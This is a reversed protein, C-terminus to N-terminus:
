VVPLRGWRAMRAITRWGMRRQPPPPVRWGEAWGRFWAALAAPDRHTRVVQVLTWTTVYPPWLLVPLNRRALWIRNRANYRYHYPHRRAQDRAPHHVVLDGAYWVVAGQDWVRWALEIGEHAYFFCRPWRGAGELVTRRVAVAGEWVSFATSPRAPDAKRLRPVWRRPAPRGDPDLVRPQLMGLRPHEGFRRVVDALLGTDLLVVDDDVFMLLDGTVADIGANRGAPIGLNSPLAVTRVGDPLGVPEWGNGVCVVDLTVGEQALVSAIARHLRGLDRGQTLVVVGM